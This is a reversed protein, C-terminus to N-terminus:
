KEVKAGREARLDFFADWIGILLFLGAGFGMLAASIVILPCYILFRPVSPKIIKRFKFDVVSFGCVFAAFLMIVAFNLFAFKAAGTQTFEFLIYAVIGLIIGTRSMKFDCFRFFGSVDKKCLALIGKSVMLLVYSFVLNTCVVVSPILSFYTEKLTELAGGVFEAEEATYAGSTKLAETFTDFIGNVTSDILSVGYMLDASYVTCGFSMLFLLTGAFLGSTFNIKKKYVLLAVPIIGIKLVVSLIYLLTGVM